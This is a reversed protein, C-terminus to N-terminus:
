PLISPSNRTDSPRKFLSGLIKKVSFAKNLIYFHIGPVQTDILERCQELAHDIGIQLVTEPSDEHEHLKKLLAEPISAGCPKTIRQIQKVNLIPMIGPIIPVKIGIKRAREVFDFYFRNDFFLQTIVLDAGADVKRKLNELDKKLDRTEIHGEPYGAVALSFGNMGKLFGVLENAYRFGDKPPTFNEQGQPPDGRLAVVLSLGEAKMTEVYDRIQKRNSGVCTFHFAAPLKLKKKIRVALDRTISQTTGFAGYTCSIFAPKFPALEKLVEFLKQVGDEDKPPFIEFSYRCRGETYFQGFDM